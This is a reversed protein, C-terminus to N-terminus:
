SSSELGSVSGCLVLLQLLTDLDALMQSLCSLCTYVHSMASEPENHENWPQKVHSFVWQLARPGGGWWVSPAGESAKRTARRHHSRPDVGIRDRAPASCLRCSVASMWLDELVM